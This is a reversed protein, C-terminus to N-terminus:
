LWKWGFPIFALVGAKLTNKLSIKKSGFLATLLVFYLIFLIGHAWGVYKVALPMGWIYKLPMAIGLLTLYSLGEILAIREFWTRM